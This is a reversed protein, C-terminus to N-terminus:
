GTRVHGGPQAQLGGALRRKNFALNCLGLVIMAGGYCSVYSGFRMLESHSSDLIWIASSLAGSVLLWLGAVSPWRVGVLAAPLTSMPGTLVMVWTLWHEDRRFIFMAEVATGLHKLGVLLGLAVTAIRLMKWRLKSSNM